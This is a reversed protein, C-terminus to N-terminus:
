RYSGCYLAMRPQEADADYCNLHHTGQNAPLGSTNRQPSRPSSRLPLWALEPEAYPLYPDGDVADDRNRGDREQKRFQNQAM